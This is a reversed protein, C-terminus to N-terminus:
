CCGECAIRSMKGSGLEHGGLLRAIQINQCIALLDFPDPGRPPGSADITRRTSAALM